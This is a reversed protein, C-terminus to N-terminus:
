SITRKIVQILGKIHDKTLKVQLHPDEAQQLLVDVMDRSEFCGKEAVRRAQHDEIVLSYFRDLKKNLAKMKKVYGQLDLFSLWPIWDGINFVANLSILEDLMGEVEALKAEAGSFYKNGTVM